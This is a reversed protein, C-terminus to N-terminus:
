LDFRDYKTDPPMRPASDLPEREAFAFEEAQYHQDINRLIAEVAAEQVTDPLDRLREIVERLHSTM